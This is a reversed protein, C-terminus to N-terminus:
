RPLRRAAAAKEMDCVAAQMAEESSGDLQQALKRLAARHFEVDASFSAPTALGCRFLVDRIAEQTAIVEHLTLAFKDSDPIASM